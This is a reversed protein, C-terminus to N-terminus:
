AAEKRMQALAATNTTHRPCHVDQPPAPYPVSLVTQCNRTACRLPVVPVARRRELEAYTPATAVARWDLAASIAATSDSLDRRRAWEDWEALLEAVHPSATLLRWCAAAHAEDAATTHQTTM